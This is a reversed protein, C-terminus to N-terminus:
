SRPGFMKAKGLVQALHHAASREAASRWAGAEACRAAALSKV